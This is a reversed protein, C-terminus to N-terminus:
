KEGLEEVIGICESVILVLGAFFMMPNDPLAIWIAYYGFIRVVSKVFSIKKHLSM